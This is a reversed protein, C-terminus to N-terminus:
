CKVAKVSTDLTHMAGEDKEDAFIMTQCIHRLSDVTITTKCLRQLCGFDNIFEHYKNRTLLHKGNQDELDLEQKM